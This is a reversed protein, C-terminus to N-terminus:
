RNELSHWAEEPHHYAHECIIRQLCHLNGVRGNSFCGWMIVNGGGHKLSINSILCTHETKEHVRDQIIEGQIQVNSLDQNQDDLTCKIHMKAREVRKKQNALKPLTKKNSIRVKLGSSRLRRHVTDTCMPKIWCHLWKYKDEQASTCKPRGSCRGEQNSGNAAHSQLSYHVCKLSMKWKNATDGLSLRYKRRALISQCTEWFM